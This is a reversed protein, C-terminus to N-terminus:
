AASRGSDPPASDAPESMHRAFRAYMEKMASVEKEIAHVTHWIQAIVSEQASKAEELSRSLRQEMADMNLRLDHVASTYYKGADLRSNLLNNAGKLHVHVAEEVAYQSTRAESTVQSYLDMTEQMEAFQAKLEVVDGRLVEINGEIKELREEVRDLRKEVRDLREEVRDLRAGLRAESAVIEDRLRVESAYIAANMEERIAARLRKESAEVAVKVEERVVLRIVNALEEFDM